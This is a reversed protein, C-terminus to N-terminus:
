LVVFNQCPEFLLLSQECHRIHEKFISSESVCQIRKIHLLFHDAKRPNLFLIIKDKELLTKLLASLDPLYELLLRSLASRWPLSHPAESFVKEQSLESFVNFIILKNSREIANNSFQNWLLLYNPIRHFYIHRRPFDRDKCIVTRRSWISITFNCLAIGHPNDKISKRFFVKVLSIVSISLGPLVIQLPKM